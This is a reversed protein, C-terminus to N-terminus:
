LLRNMTMKETVVSQNDGRHIVAKTPHELHHYWIMDEESQLKGNKLLFVSSDCDITENPSIFDGRDLLLLSFLVRLFGKKPKCDSAEWGLGVVVESLGPHEKSLNVKQGKSLNVSM